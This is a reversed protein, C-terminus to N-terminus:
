GKSAGEVTNRERGSACCALGDAGHDTALLNKNPLARWLSDETASDDVHTAAVYSSSEELGHGSPAKGQANPSAVGVVCSSDDGSKWNGNYCAVAAASDPDSAGYGVVQLRCEVDVDRGYRDESRKLCEM